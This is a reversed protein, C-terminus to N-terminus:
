RRACAALVVWRGSEPQYFVPDPRVSNSHPQPLTQMPRGECLAPGVRTEVLAVAAARDKASPQLVAGDLKVWTMWAQHAVAYDTMVRYDRGEFAVVTEADENTVDYAMQCGALLGTAVLAAMRTAARTAVRTAPLTASRAGGCVPAATANNMAM